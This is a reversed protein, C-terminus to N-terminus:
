FKQLEFIGCGYHCNFNNSVNFTNLEANTHLDGMDDVYSFSVLKFKKDFQSLLYSISFVRHANFEIRQPGIPTSFYFKGSQKLMQYITDLGKLHGNIDISDGYRGLGFHEIAHLCSISDTYGIYKENLQMLDAQIFKINKIDSSVPRLDFIEIKRFSAVHAVFGDIRSAIDVHTVPSNEFIKQAVLLDQHFYHGSHTGGSDDKDTLVPFFSITKFDNNKKLQRKIKFYDTIYFPLHKINKLFSKYDWAFLNFVRQLLKLM